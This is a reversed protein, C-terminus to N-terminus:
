TNLTSRRRLERLICRRERRTVPQEDRACARLYDTTWCQVMTTIRDDSRLQKM